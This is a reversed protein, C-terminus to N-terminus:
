VTNWGARCSSETWNAERSRPPLSIAEARRSWRSIAARYSQSHDAGGFM